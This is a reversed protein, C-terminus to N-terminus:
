QHEGRVQSIIEKWAKQIIQHLMRTRTDGMCKIMEPRVKDIRLKEHRCKKYLMKVELVLKIVHLILVSVVTNQLCNKFNSVLTSLSISLSRKFSYIIEFYPKCAIIEKITNFTTLKLVRILLLPSARKRVIWHSVALWCMDSCAMFHMICCFADEHIM